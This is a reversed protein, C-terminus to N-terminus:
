FHALSHLYGHRIGVKKLTQCESTIGTCRQNHDWDESEEGATLHGTADEPLGHARMKGETVRIVHLQVKKLLWNSPNTTVCILLQGVITEAGFSRFFGFGFSEHAYARANGVLELAKRAPDSSCELDFFILCPRPYVHPM